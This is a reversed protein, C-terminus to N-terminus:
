AAAALRACPPCRSAQGARPTCWGPPACRGQQWAWIHV